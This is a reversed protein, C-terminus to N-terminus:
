ATSASRRATGSSAQQDLWEVQPAFGGGERVVSNLGDAGVVLDAAPPTELRRGFRIDM